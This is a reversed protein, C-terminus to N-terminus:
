KEVTDFAEKLVLSVETWITYGNMRPVLYHLKLLNNYVSVPSSNWLFTM